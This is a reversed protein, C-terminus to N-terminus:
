YALLYDEVDEVLKNLAKEYDALSDLYWVAWEKLWRVRGHFAAIKEYDSTILESRQFDWIEPVYQVNIEEYAADYSKGNYLLRIQRYEYFDGLRAVLSKDNILGLQGSAVMTTWAARRPWITIANALNEFFDHDSQKPHSDVNELWILIKETTELFATQELKVQKAFEQDARLEAHLQSFSERAEIRDIRNQWESELWIAVFVSVFILTAEGAIKSFRTKNIKIVKDQTLRNCSNGGSDRTLRLLDVAAQPRFSGRSIM